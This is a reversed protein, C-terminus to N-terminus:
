VRSSGFELFDGSTQQQNLTAVHSGYFLKSSSASKRSRLCGVHDSDTFVVIHSPEEVRRVFEQILRAHGILYRAVRKLPDM